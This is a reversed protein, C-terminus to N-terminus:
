VMAASDFEPHEVMFDLLRDAYEEFRPCSVGTGALDTVTNTTDYTTPSAFYDLAEVPLGMLREALPLSVAARTVSLPLPVWVVRKGLRRAFADVLERATPPDPDTLAYTKGLSEELVSLRDLADIVFDRPVLCFRVQDPDAVAPVVAVRPQRRLFTALFYPGDYKQTAGTTSDGVVIGPRYITAPLGDAMAKRVLLEADYKTSEYHNRFDQGVDLEDERFRGAYRGSVYCTSVYHLRELRPLGRCLDLVRDTGLVNVSRAAREGVALDYVAALHWVETVDAVLPVDAEDLGLGPATIDGVVLRVRGAVHPEAAEIEALKDRAQALHRDQVVCVAQVGPRRGLLRGLLASGLFGPFGTMLLASM